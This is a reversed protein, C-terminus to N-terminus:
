NSIKQAQYKKKARQERIGQIRGAEYIAGCIMRSKVPDRYEDFARSSICAQLIDDARHLSALTLYNTLKVFEALDILNEHTDNHNGTM